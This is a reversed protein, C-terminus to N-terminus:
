GAKASPQPVVPMDSSTCTPTTEAATKVREILALLKRPDVRGRRPSKALEGPAIPDAIRTTVM